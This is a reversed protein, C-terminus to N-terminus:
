DVSITELIDAERREIIQVVIKSLAWFLGDTWEKQFVRREDVIKTKKASSM